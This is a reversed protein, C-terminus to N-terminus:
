KASAGRAHAAYHNQAGADNPITAYCICCKGTTRGINHDKLYSAMQKDKTSRDNGGM